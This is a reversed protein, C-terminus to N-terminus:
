FSFSLRGMAGGRVPTVAAARSPTAVARADKRDRFFMWGGVGGLGIGLGVGAVGAALTDYRKPCEADSGSCTQNGDIAILLIVAVLSAAAGGSAVWKWTRLPRARVLPIPEPEKTLIVEFRQAEGAGRVSITQQAEIHGPFLATIRHEGPDLKGQYPASGVPQDDVRLDAGQPRTAIMVPVPLQRATVLQTATKALLENLETITCVQCSDELSREVHGEEEPSLLDLQIAYAAGTAEVSARLFQEAGTKEAIRQLCTTSVCDLLDPEDALTAVVEERSILRIGAAEFGSRISGQLLSRLEPAADGKMQLSLLAITGKAPEAEPEQARAEGSSIAAVLALVTTFALRRSM